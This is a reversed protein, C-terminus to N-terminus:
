RAAAGDARLRALVHDAALRAGPWWLHVGDNSRIQQDVGDIAMRQQFAGTPTIVPRLDVIAAGPVGRAARQAAANVAAFQRGLAADDPAPLTLWYVRAAGARSWTRMVRRARTAYRAVWRSGCCRAGRIPWGDNAGLTAVVVDPRYRASQRRALAGWDLLHPKSLGTAVRIDVHVSAAGGQELGQKLYRDTLLMMSDGTVLVRQPRAQAAPAAALLALVVLLTTRRM